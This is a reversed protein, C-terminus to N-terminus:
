GSHNSRHRRVSGETISVGRRQLARTVAMNGVAPDLLERVWELAAEPNLTCIYACVKCGIPAVLESHLDSV